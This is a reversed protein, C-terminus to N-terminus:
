TLRLGTRIEDLWASRAATGFSDRTVVIVTWGRERLWRRRRQDRQRAARNEHFERGDYEIAVKHHPYALDLRYVPHGGEEVWYQLQPEPLDADLIAIRTFSEGSSEALPDALASLERLQRVGRRGSYRPLAELMELRTVGCIRMFADLTALAKWRPLRCALDLATRLPTTLTLGQQECIDRPALDRETGRCGTRRVRSHGRLVLVDLPPLIELEEYEFTDVGHLWAALQDCIVSFPRMVLRLAHARNELSDEVASPWYVNTLVRRVQDTTVLEELERRTIGLELAQSYTFPENPLRQLPPLQM